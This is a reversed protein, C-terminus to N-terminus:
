RITWDVEGNKVFARVVKAARAANIYNPNRPAHCDYSGGDGPMPIFLDNAAGERLDLGRMAISKAKLPDAEFAAKDADSGFGLVYQGALCAATGCDQYRTEFILRCQDLYGGMHFATGGQGPSPNPQREVYDALELLKKKNM